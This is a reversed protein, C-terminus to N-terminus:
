KNMEKIPIFWELQLYHMIAKREADTPPRVTKFGMLGQDNIILSIIEPLKNGIKINSYTKM